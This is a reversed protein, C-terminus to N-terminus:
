MTELHSITDCTIWLICLIHRFVSIKHLIQIQLEAELPTSVFSLWHRYIPSAQGNGKIKGKINIKEEISKTWTFM